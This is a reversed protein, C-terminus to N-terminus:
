IQGPGAETKLTPMIEKEWYNLAKEIKVPSIQPCLKLIWGKMEAVSKLLTEHLCKDDGETLLSNDKLSICKGNPFTIVRLSVLFRSCSPITYINNMAAGYCSFDVPTLKFNYSHRWVGTSNEPVLKDTEWMDKKVTRLHQREIVDEKRVFKYKCCSHCYIPSEQKFDLPIAQFSPYGFGVDVLFQDGDSVVNNAISLCHDNPNIVRASIFNVDFGISELIFHFAANNELCLGGITTLANQEIEEKSPARRQEKDLCLLTINHFPVNYQYAEILSNLFALRNEHFKESPNEIKLHSEVFDLAEQRTIM